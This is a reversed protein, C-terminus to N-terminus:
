HIVKGEVSVLRETQQDITKNHVDLTKRYKVLTQSVLDLHKEPEDRIHKNMEKRLAQFLLSHTQLCLLPTNYDTITSYKEHCWRENYLFGHNDTCLSHESIVAHSLRALLYTM